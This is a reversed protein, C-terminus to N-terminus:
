QNTVVALTFPYIDYCKITVRGQGSQLRNCECVCVCVCVCYACVYACVHVHESVRM